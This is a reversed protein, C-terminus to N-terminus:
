HGLCNRRAALSDGLMPENVPHSVRPGSSLVGAGVGVWFTGVSRPLHHPKKKLSDWFPASLCQGASDRIGAWLRRRVIRELVPRGFLRILGSTGAGGKRFRNVPAILYVSNATLGRLEAPYLM